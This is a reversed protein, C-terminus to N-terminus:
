ISKIYTKIGEDYLQQCHNIANNFNKEQKYLIRSYEKFFTIEDKIDEIQEELIKNKRYKNRFSELYLKKNLASTYRMKFMCNLNSFYNKWMILEKILVFLANMDLNDVSFYNNWIETYGKFNIVMKYKKLYPTYFKTQEIFKDRKSRVEDFNYIFIM